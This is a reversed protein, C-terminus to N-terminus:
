TAILEALDAKFQSVREARNAREREIERAENLWVNSERVMQIEDRQESVTKLIARLDSRALLYMGGKVGYGHVQDSMSHYRQNADLIDLYETVRQEPASM